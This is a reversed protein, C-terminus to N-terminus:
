LFLKNPRRHTGINKKVDRRLKNTVLQYRLAMKYGTEKRAQQHKRTSVMHKISLEKVNYLNNM